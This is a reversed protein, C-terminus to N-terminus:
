IFRTGYIDDFEADPDPVAYRNIETNEKPKSSDYFIVDKKQLFNFAEDQNIHNKSNKNKSPLWNKIRAEYSLLWQREYLDEKTMHNRWLSLDNNGETLGKDRADLFLLAVCNDNIDAIIKCIEAPLSIKFLIAGWIAWAIENDHIHTYNKSIITCIVKKIKVLDLDKGASREKVLYGIARPLVSYENLVSQLVIDQVFKFNRETIEEYFLRSLCYRLLSGNPFKNKLEFAIDFFRMLDVLQQNEKKRIIKSKLESAWKTDLTQPLKEFRTKKPNLSLEFYSLCEELYSIIAEAESNSNTYLEYDDFYRFGEINKFKQCLKNDVMCLLIEALLYSTDPGIPIGISQQDQGNRIAADIKNGLLYNDTKGVKSIKKGHLGWSFSHTYISNYFNNIDAIIMIRYTSRFHARLIPMEDVNKNTILAREGKGNLQPKSISLNSNNSKSYLNRWNEQILKVLRYYLIPNPIGLKRRLSGVRPINHVVIKSFKKSTNFAPTLEFFHAKIIESFKKTTFPPPLEKPFYGSSLINKLVKM